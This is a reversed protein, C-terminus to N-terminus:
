NQSKMVMDCTSLKHRAPIQWMLFPKASWNQQQLRHKMLRTHASWESSVPHELPPPPRLSVPALVSHKLCLPFLTGCCSSLIFFHIIIKLILTHLRIRMTVGWFLSLLQPPQWDFRIFNALSFCTKGQTDNYLYVYFTYNLNCKEAIRWM